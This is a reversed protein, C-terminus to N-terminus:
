KCTIFVMVLCIYCACNCSCYFDCLLVVLLLLSMEVLSVWRIDLLGRGRYDVFLNLLKTFVRAEFSFVFVRQFGVTDPKGTSFTGDARSQREFVSHLVVGSLHQWVPAHWLCCTDLHLRVPAESWVPSALGPDCKRCTYQACNTRSLLSQYQLGFIGSLIGQWYFCYKRLGSHFVLCM